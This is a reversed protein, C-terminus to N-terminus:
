HAARARGFSSFAWWKRQQTLTLEVLRMLEPKQKMNRPATFWRSTAFFIYLSENLVFYFLKFLFIGQFYLTIAQLYQHIGKNVSLPLMWQKYGRMLRLPWLLRFVLGAIVLCVSLQECFSSYPVNLTWATLWRWFCRQIATMGNDPLCWATETCRFIRSMVITKQLKTQFLTRAWIQRRQVQFWQRHVWYTLNLKKKLKM